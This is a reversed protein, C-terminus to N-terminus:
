CVIPPQGLLERTLNTVPDGCPARIGPPLPLDPVPVPLGPLPAPKPASAPPKLPGTVGWVPQADSHTNTTLQSANDATLKAGGATMPMVYLEDDGDRDSDFVIKTGDPSWAPAVDFGPAQTLRRPHRGDLDMLWIDPSGGISSTYAIHTGDPSFAADSDFALTRTLRVQKGTGAADMLYIDADSNRLSTFAIKTGDPSWAPRYDTEAVTTLRERHTGDADMVYIDANGARLGTFVIRRGDPSFSPEISPLDGSTLRQLGSGDVNIVWIDDTGARNSGFVIRTGDPSFSPHAETSGDGAFLKIPTPSAPDLVYLDAEPDEGGIFAILGNTTAPADASATGPVLAVAGALTTVAAMTLVAVGRM